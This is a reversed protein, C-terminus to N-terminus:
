AQELDTITEFLPVVILGLRAGIKSSKNKEAISAGVTGTLLGVEKQLVLVELLDSVTETHSIICHRIVEPGFAQRAEYAKQFIRLESETRDAYSTRPLRLPRPDRLCQLLVKQRSAEELTAYDACVGAQNLLDAIVEAHIDSSQRLDHTAMHFGFSRAARLLPRLRVEALRGGRNRVLAADLVRLDQIFEEASPYPTSPTVAHRLAETGTLSTLTAALRAYVGVLAQRYPEDARHDNPDQAQAALDELAPTGGRLQRSVSLEAGLYQVETLYFRLVVEAHRRITYVLTEATVNPNGDRDGGIWNGM